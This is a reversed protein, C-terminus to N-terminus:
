VKHATLMILTETSVIGDIDRIVTLAEDLEALTGAELEVMLDWRGNTTHIEKAEPIGSLAKIVAGGQKAQEQILTIARVRDGIEESRLRVTFGLIHGSRELRDIRNQVTGRSVGLHQALSSVPLRANERLLAILRRDTEDLSATSPM